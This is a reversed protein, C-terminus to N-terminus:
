LRDLSAPFSCRHLVSCRRAFARALDEVRVRERARHRPQRVLQDLPVVVQLPEREDADVRAADREGPPQLLEHGLSAADLEREAGDVDGEMAVVDENAAALRREVRLGDDAARLEVEREAPRRAHEDVVHEEGAPRDPRRDVREEVVAAGFADLEGDEDIAAVALQRDARVVDPLVERGREALAHPDLERLDVPDVAHHELRVSPCRMLVLVSPM